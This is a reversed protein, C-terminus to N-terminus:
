AGYDEGFRGVYLGLKQNEIEQNNLADLLYRFLDPLPLV